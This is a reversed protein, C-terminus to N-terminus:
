GQQTEIAHCRCGIQGQSCGLFHATYGLQSRASVNAGKNALTEAVKWHDHYSAIYFATRGKGDQVNVDVEDQVLLKRVVDLKGNSGAAVLATHRHGNRANVDAKGNDVLVCVVDLHGEYSARMSLRTALITRPM